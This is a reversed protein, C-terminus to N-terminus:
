QAAIGTQNGPSASHRYCSGSDYSYLPIYRNSAVKDAAIPKSNQTCDLIWWRGEHQWMVWAHSIASRISAKGIVYRARGDGLQECLWLSKAKCDGAHKAATVAPLAAKYPETFSYRFARGIRMLEEARKMTVTQNPLGKLVKKVSEMHEEYPSDSAFEGLDVAAM